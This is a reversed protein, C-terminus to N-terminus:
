QKKKNEAKVMDSIYKLAKAHSLPRLYLTKVRPDLLTAIAFTDVFEIDKFKQEYQAIFMSKLQKVPETAPSM